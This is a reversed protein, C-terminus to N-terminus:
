VPAGSAMSRRPRGRGRHRSLPKPPAYESREEEVRSAFPNRVRVSGCVLGHQLDESLLVACNQLEAAAVIMADWWSLEYRRELERARAIVDRDIQQPEWALLTTVDEWAEDASLGPELKRTVTAYYESLVQISTRGRQEAWLNRVWEAAIPQKAPEGADRAYVFVNTDVFVSGNM